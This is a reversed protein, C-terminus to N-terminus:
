ESQYITITLQVTGVTRDEADLDNDSQFGTAEVSLCDYPPLEPCMKSNAKEELAQLREDVDESDTNRYFVNFIYAKGKEGTEPRIVPTGGAGLIWWSAKPAKQPVAGIYLNTGVVGFGNTEMWQALAKAVTM